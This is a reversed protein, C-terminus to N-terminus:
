TEDHHEDEARAGGEPLPDVQDWVDMDKFQHLRWLAGDATLALIDGGEAGTVQM